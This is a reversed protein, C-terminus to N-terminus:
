QERGACETCRRSYRFDIFSSCEPCFDGEIALIPGPEPIKHWRPYPIVRYPCVDPDSNSAALLICPDDAGECATCEYRSMRPKM